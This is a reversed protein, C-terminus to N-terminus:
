LVNCYLLQLMLIDGVGLTGDGNVDGRAVLEPDTLVGSYILDLIKIDGIGITGDGNVDGRLNKTGAILIDFSFNSFGEVRPSVSLRLEIQLVEDHDIRRDTYDWKLTIYRRATEPYWRTTNLILYVPEEENKIYVIKSKVSGPELTEWNINTCEVECISDWYVKVDYTEVASVNTIANPTVLLMFAFVILSLAVIVIVAKGERFYQM